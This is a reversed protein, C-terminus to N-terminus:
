HSLGNVPRYMSRPSPEVLQNKNLLLRYSNDVRQTRAGLFLTSSCSCSNGAPTRKQAVSCRCIRPNGGDEAKFMPWPGVVFTRPCGTEIKRGNSAM